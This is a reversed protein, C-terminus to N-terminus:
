IVYLIIHSELILKYEYLGCLIKGQDLMDFNLNGLIVYQWSQLDLVLQGM